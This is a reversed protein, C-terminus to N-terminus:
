LYLTIVNFSTSDKSNLHEEFWNVQLIASVTTIRMASGHNGASTHTLYVAQPSAHRIVKGTVQMELAFLSRINIQMLPMSIYSRICVTFYVM